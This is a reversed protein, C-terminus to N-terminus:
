GENGDVGICSDYVWQKEAAVCAKMKETTREGSTSYGFYIAALIALAVTVIGVTVVTTTKVEDSM